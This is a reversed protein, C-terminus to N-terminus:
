VCWARTYGCVCNKCAGHGQTAGFVTEVPVMGKHLGLACNKCAVHGQTAGLLTKELLM